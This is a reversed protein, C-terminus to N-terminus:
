DYVLILPTAPHGPPYFAEGRPHPVWPQSYPRNWLEGLSSLRCTRQSYIHSKDKRNDVESFVLLLRLPFLLAVISVNALHGTLLSETLYFSISILHGTCETQVHLM